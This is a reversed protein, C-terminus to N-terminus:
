RDRSWTKRQPGISHKLESDWEKRRILGGIPKCECWAPRMWIDHSETHAIPCCRWTSIVNEVPDLIKSVFQEIDLDPDLEAWVIDFLEDSDECRLTRVYSAWREVWWPYYGSSEWDIIAEINGDHVMINGFNLDAHTLVYPGGDPFNDKLEQLKAEIVDKDDSNLKESNSLGVRLEEAMGDFWEEKTKGVQKCMSPPACQGIIYDMLPSGDIRRAVPSTHQRLERLAATVQQAYGQKEEPSLGKWINHLPVGKARSMVTFQFPDGPKGYQHMEKVLPINQTGQEKLFQYVM